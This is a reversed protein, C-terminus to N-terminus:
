ESATGSKQVQPGSERKGTKEFGEGSNRTWGASRRAKYLSIEGM